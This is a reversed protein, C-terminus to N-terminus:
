RQRKPWPVNPNGDIDCGGRLAYHTHGLDQATKIAHCARCLSQLPGDDPGGNVLAVIHDAVTAETIRPPTRALCMACLPSGRLQKARRKMGSYGRLRKDM